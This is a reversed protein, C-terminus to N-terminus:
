AIHLKTAEVWPMKRLRKRDSTDHMTSHISKISKKESFLPYNEVSRMQNKVENSLVFM